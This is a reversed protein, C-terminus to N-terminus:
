GDNRKQVERIADLQEQTLEVEETSKSQEIVQPKDWKGVVRYEIKTIVDIAPEFLKSLLWVIVGTTPEVAWGALVPLSSTVKPSVVAIQDVTKGVLDLQGTLSVDAAAGDVLLSKTEVMGNTLEFQGSISNFFFGDKYIDEFDLTLRRTVSQLSFLSFIRARADSVEELYGKNLYLKSQGSLSAVNFTFPAGIWTLELLGDAASDRVGVNFAFDRLLRGFKYSSFSQSLSTKNTKMDWLINFNSTLLGDREISGELKWSDKESTSNVVLKGLNYNGFKCKGCELLIDPLDSIAEKILALEKEAAEKDAALKDVNQIASNQSNVLQESEKREEDLMKDLLSQSLEFRDLEIRLSADELLYLRGSAQDSNINFPTKSLPTGDRETMTLSVNDLVVGALEIGKFSFKLNIPASKDTIESDKKFTETITLLQEILDPLSILPLQGNILLSDSSVQMAQGEPGIRISGQKVDLGGDKPTFTLSGFLHDQLQFNLKGLNEGQQFRMAFKGEDEAVKRMPATYDFAIGKLDSDISIDTKWSLCNAICLWGKLKFETQGYVSLKNNPFLWDLAPEINSQTNAIFNLRTGSETKETALSGSVKGGFLNAQINKADISKDSFSVTTKVNKLELDLDNLKVNNNDLVLKGDVDFDNTGELPFRMKLQTIFKKDVSLSNLVPELEDNLESNRIFEDASAFDTDVALDLKLIPTEASFQNIEANAKLVKLKQFSGKDAAVFMADQNFYLTVDLEELKPFGSQYQYDLDEAKAMIEFTLDKQEIFNKVLRGQLNFFADKLNGGLVAQSLYENLELYEEGVPLFKPVRKLDANLLEAQLSIEPDSEDHFYINGTAMIPIQELEIDLKSISLRSDQNLSVFEGVIDLRELEVPEPFLSGYDLLGKDATFDFLVSDEVINIKGHLPPLAPSFSTKNLKLEAVDIVGKSINWSENLKLLTLHFNKVLLQPDAKLFWSQLEDNDILLAWLDNLLGPEVEQYDIHIMSSPQGSVSLKLGALDIETGDGDKAILKRLLFAREQSENALWSIQSSISQYKFKQRGIKFDVPSLSLDMYMSRWEDYVWEAWVQGNLVGKEVVGAIFKDMMPIRSLEVEQANFYLSATSGPRRPDGDLEAIFTLQGGKDQSIVGDLQHVDSFNQISLTQLSFSAEPFGQRRTELTFNSIAVDNQGLLVDVLFDYSTYTSGSTSTSELSSLDLIINSDSVFFEETAVTLQFLSQWINVAISAEAVSVQAEDGQWINLGRITVKPGNRAWEGSIQEITVNTALKDSLFLEIDPKIENIFPLLARILSIIIALTIIFTALILWIRNLLKTLLRSIRM